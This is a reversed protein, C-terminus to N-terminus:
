SKKFFPSSFLSVTAWQEGGFIAREALSYINFFNCLFGIPIRGITEEQSLGVSFIECYTSKQNCGSIFAMGEKRLSM